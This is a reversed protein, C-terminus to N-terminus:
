SYSIQSLTWSSNKRGYILRGFCDSVIFWAREAHALRYFTGAYITGYFPTFGSGADFYFNIGAYAPTSSCLSDLATELAAQTNFAGLYKGMKTNPNPITGSAM